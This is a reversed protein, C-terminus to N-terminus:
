LPEARVEWVDGALRHAQVAFDPGLGAALAEVAPLPTFDPMDDVRLVRQGGQVSLVIHEGPTGAPLTATAIASAGCAWLAPGRRVAEVRCPAALEACAAHALADLGPGAAAGQEPVVEGGDLLVFGLPGDGPPGEAAVLAVEDWRRARAIGHVGPGGWAPATELPPMPGAGARGTRGGGRGAAGAADPPWGLAARVLGQLRGRAM